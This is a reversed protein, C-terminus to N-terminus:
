AEEKTTYIVEDNTIRIAKQEAHYAETRKGNAKLTMGNIKDPM